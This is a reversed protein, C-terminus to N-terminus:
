QLNDYVEPGRWCVRGDLNDGADGGREEGRALCSHRGIFVVRVRAVWARDDRESLAEVEERREVRLQRLVVAEM